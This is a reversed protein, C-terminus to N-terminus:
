WIKISLIGNNNDDNCLISYGVRGYIGLICENAPTAGLVAVTRTNM